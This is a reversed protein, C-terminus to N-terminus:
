TQDQREQLGAKGHEQQADGEREGIREQGQVDLLDVAHALRLRRHPRSDGGPQLADVHSRRLQPVASHV